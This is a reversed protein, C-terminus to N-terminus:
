ESKNKSAAIDLPFEIEKKTNENILISSFDEYIPKQTDIIEFDFNLKKGIKQFDNPLIRGNKYLEKAITIFFTKEKELIEKIKEKEDQLLNEIDSNAKDYDSNFHYGQYVHKNQMSSITKGMGFIRHYKSAWTTAQLLDTTAGSTILDKGFIM